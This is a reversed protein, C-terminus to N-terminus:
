MLSPPSLLGAWISASLCTCWTNRRGDPQRNGSASLRLCMALLCGLLILMIIVSLSIHEYHWAFIWGINALSAVFFFVGIKETFSSGPTGNRVAAIFKLPSSFYWCSCLGGCFFFPPQVVRRASQNLAQRSSGDAPISILRTLRCSQYFVLANLNPSCSRPTEKKLKKWSGNNLWSARGHPFSPCFCIRHNNLRIFCKM